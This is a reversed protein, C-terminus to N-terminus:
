SRHRDSPQRGSIGQPRCGTKTLEALKAYKFFKNFADLMALTLGESGDLFGLRLIYNHFFTLKARILAYLISSRKGVAFAEEAGLTSYHDIKRLIHSLRSETLHELPTSLPFVKGEVTVAEHVLADTMRGKEKWFLRTVRDPWWGMRKIWKGQFYNKRPFSYGTIDSPPMPATVIKEIERRAEPAVREDADLILVWPCRCRDLALQKQPGFGHWSEEYTDCGFNRAIELTADTSGSDVVVVQEAFSVSALCAPLKEAENKTIIAVSLPCTRRDAANAETM